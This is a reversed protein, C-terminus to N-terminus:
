DHGWGGIGGDEVIDAIQQTKDSHKSFYINYDHGWGGIGGDSTLYKVIDHGWGGIGGDKNVDHGWGGIGGDDMIHNAIAVAEDQKFADQGQVLVSAIKSVAEDRTYTSPACVLSSVQLFAATIFAFM